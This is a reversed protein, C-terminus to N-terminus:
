PDLTWFFFSRPTERDKKREDMTDGAMRWAVTRGPQDSIGLHLAGSLGLLSAYKTRVDLSSSPPCRLLHTNKADQDAERPAGALFSGSM